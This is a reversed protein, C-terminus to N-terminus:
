HDIHKDNLIIHLIVPLTHTHAQIHEVGVCVDSQLVASKTVTVVNSLFKRGRVKEWQQSTWKTCPRLAILQGSLYTLRPPGEWHVPRHKGTGRDTNIDGFGGSMHLCAPSHSVHLGVGAAYCRHGRPECMHCASGMNNGKGPFEKMLAAKM